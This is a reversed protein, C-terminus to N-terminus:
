QSNMGILYLVRCIKLWDSNNNSLIRVLKACSVPLDVPVPVHSNTTATIVHVVMRAHHVAVSM